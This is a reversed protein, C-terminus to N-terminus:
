FPIINDRVFSCVPNPMQDPDIRKPPQQMPSSIPGAGHGPQGPVGPMGGPMGGPGSPPLQMPGAGPVPASFQSSQYMRQSTAPPQGGM